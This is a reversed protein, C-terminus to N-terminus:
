IFNWLNSERRNCNGTYIYFAMGKYTSMDSYKHSFTRMSYFHIFLLNALDETLYKKKAYHLGPIASSTVWLCGANLSIVHCALDRVVLDRHVKLSWLCKETELVFNELISEFVTKWRRRQDRCLWVWFFRCSDGVSASHRGITCFIYMRINHVKHVEKLMGFAWVHWEHNLHSLNHFQM